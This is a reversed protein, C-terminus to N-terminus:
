AFFTPLCARDLTRATRPDNWEAGGEMMLSKRQLFRLVADECQQETLNADTGPGEYEIYAAIMANIDDYKPQGALLRERNREELAGELDFRAREDLSAYTILVNGDPGKPYIKEDSLDVIKGDQNIQMCPLQSRVSHSAMLAPRRVHAPQFAHCPASLAIAAVIAARTM